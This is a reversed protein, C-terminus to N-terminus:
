KKSQELSRRYEFLKKLEEDSKERLWDVLLKRKDKHKIFYYVAYSCIPEIKLNNEVAFKIAENVLKEALGKGRQEPPVYTEILQLIGQEKNISYRLFPKEGPGTLAVFVHSTRKVEVDM